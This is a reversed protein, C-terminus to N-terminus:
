RGRGVSNIAYDSWSSFARDLEALGAETFTEDGIWVSGDPAIQLSFGKQKLSKLVEEM